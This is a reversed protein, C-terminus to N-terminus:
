ENRRKGTMAEERIELLENVIYELSPKAQLVKRGDAWAGHNGVYSYPDSYQAHRSAGRSRDLRLKRTIRQERAWRHFHLLYSRCRDGFVVYVPKRTCFHTLM